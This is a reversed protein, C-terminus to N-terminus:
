PTRAKTRPASWYALVSGLLAFWFAIVLANWWWDSDSFGLGRLLPYAVAKKLKTQRVMEAVQTMDYFAPLCFGVWCGLSAGVVVRQLRRYRPALLRVLLCLVVLAPLVLFLPFLLYYAM